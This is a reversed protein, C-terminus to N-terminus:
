LERRSLKFNCQVKVFACKRNASLSEINLEQMKFTELFFVCFPVRLEHAVQIHEPLNAEDDDDDFRLQM